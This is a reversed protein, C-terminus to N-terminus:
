LITNDYWERFWHYESQLFFAGVEILWNYGDKRIYNALFDKWEQAPFFLNVTTLYIEEGDESLYAEFLGEHRQLMHVTEHLLVELKEEERTVLSSVLIKGQDHSYAGKFPVEVNWQICVKYEANLNELWQIAQTTSTLTTMNAVYALGM